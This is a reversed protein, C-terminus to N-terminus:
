LLRKLNPLALALWKSRPNFYQAALWLTRLDWTKTPSTTTPQGLNKEVFAQLGADSLDRSEFKSATEVPVIPAPQYRHAACGVLLFTGLLSFRRAFSSNM